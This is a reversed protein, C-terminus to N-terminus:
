YKRPRIYKVYQIYVDRTNIAEVIKKARQYGSKGSVEEASSWFWRNLWLPLVSNGQGERLNRPPM